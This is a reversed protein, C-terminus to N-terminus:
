NENGGGQTGWDDDNSPFQKERMESVHIHLEQLHHAISGLRGSYVHPNGLLNNWIDDTRNELSRLHNRIDDLRISMYFLLFVVTGMLLIAGTDFGM